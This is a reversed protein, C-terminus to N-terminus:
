KVWLAQIEESCLDQVPESSDQDLADSVAQLEPKNLGFDKAVKMRSAKKPDAKWAARVSSGPTGLESVFDCVNAM